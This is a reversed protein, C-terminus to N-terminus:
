GGARSRCAALEYPGASAQLGVKAPQAAQYLGFAVAALILAAAVVGDRNRRREAASATEYANRNEM